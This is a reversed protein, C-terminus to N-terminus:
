PTQGPTLGLSSVTWWASTAAVGVWLLPYVLRKEAEKGTSFLNLGFRRDSLPWFVPCGTNTLMDGFMHILMGAVLAVPIFTLPYEPLGSAVAQTHLWVVPIAFAFPLGWGLLGKLGLARLLSAWCLVLLFTLWVKSIPNDPFVAALETVGGLLAIGLLSHTERRHELMPSFARTFPGYTSSVLSNPHDIDNLLAFGPVSTVALLVAEPPLRFAAGTSTVVLVGSLAHSKHMM